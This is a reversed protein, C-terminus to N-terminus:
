NAKILEALMKDGSSKPFYGLTAGYDPDPGKENMTEDVAAEITLEESCLKQILLPTADDVYSLGVGVNWALYTSAGKDVFAQALDEFYLCHCGMMVLATNNFQGKMNENIFKASISFVWPGEDTVKAYTVQDTLQEPIHKMKSYQEATFLWTRNTVKPDMGLLGSYVRFIVLKYNYAPLNRYLDVTVEDGQYVDVKFGFKELDSTMQNTFHKNPYNAYLQDVIAARAGEPISPTNPQSM